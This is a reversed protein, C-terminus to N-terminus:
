EGAKLAEIKAEVQAIRADIADVQGATYAAELALQIDLVNRLHSDTDYDGTRELSNILLVDAAIERIKENMNM